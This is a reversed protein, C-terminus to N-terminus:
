FDALVFGFQDTLMALMELLTGTFPTTERRGRHTAMDLRYRDSRLLTLRARNQRDDADGSYIVLQQGYTRVHLHTYGREHLITEAHSRAADLFIDPM